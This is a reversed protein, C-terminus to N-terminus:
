CWQNHLGWLYSNFPERATRLPSFRLLASRSSSGACGLELLKLIPYVIVWLVCCILRM